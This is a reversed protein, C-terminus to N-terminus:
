KSYLDLIVVLAGYGVLVVMDWINKKIDWMKGLLTLENMKDLQVKTLFHM